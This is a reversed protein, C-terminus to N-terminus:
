DVFVYFYNEFSTQDAMFKFYALPCEQLAEIKYSQEQFKVWIRM